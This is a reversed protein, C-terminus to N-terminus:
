CGTAPHRPQWRAATDGGGGRALLEGGGKVGKRRSCSACDIKTSSFYQSGDLAVTYYKQADIETLFRGTWGVRRMREFLCPLVGRLPEIPAADLIQRM